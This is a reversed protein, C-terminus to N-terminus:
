ASRPIQARVPQRPRHLARLLPAQEHWFYFFRQLVEPAAGKNFPNNESLQFDMMTHDLLAYLAGDKSSFYRYFTKRPIQLSACLDSISIDEYQQKLMLALLGKEISRQRQFSQETHCIKYM